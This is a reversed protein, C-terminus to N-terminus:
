GGRRDRQSGTEAFLVNIAVPALALNAGSIGDGGFGHWSPPDGWNGSPNPLPPPATVKFNVGSVDIDGRSILITGPNAL